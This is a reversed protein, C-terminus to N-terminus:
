PQGGGQIKVRCSHLLPGVWRLLVSRLDTSLDWANVGFLTKSNLLAPTLEVRAKAAHDLTDRWYPWDDSAHDEIRSRSTKYHNSDGYM